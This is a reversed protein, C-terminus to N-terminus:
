GGGSARPTVSTAGLAAPGAGSPGPPVRAAPPRAAPPRAAPPRAAPPRAAPARAALARVADDLQDPRELMVMHGCGALVVLEAGPIAAALTEAHRPPTMVDEAGVVVTTPVAVEGLAAEADFSVLQVLLAATVRAPVRATIRRILRVDDDAHRSGFTMRAVPDGVDTDPLSPGPLLSTLRGAAGLVPGALAILARLGPVGRGVVPGASTAVLALAAVRHSPRDGGPRDRTLLRLALMGGMSHGVLVAEDLEMQELVEHIDDVVRDLGLGGTGVTSRGHGRLDPAVVRYGADGLDRLQRTWVDASLTIGHLLVVPRGSGRALVRLQTGDSLMLQHVEVDAPLAAPPGGDATATFGGPVGCDPKGVDRPEADREEAPHRNRRWLLQGVAVGGALGVAAIGAGVVNRRSPMHAPLGSRLAGAPPTLRSTAPPYPESAM